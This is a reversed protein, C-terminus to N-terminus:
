KHYPKWEYSRLIKQIKKIVNIIGRNDLIREMLEELLARIEELPEPLPYSKLSRLGDLTHGVYHSPPINEKLLDAIEKATYHTMTWYFEEFDMVCLTKTAMRLFSTFIRKYIFYLRKEEDCGRLATMYNWLDRFYEYQSFHTVIDFWSPVEIITKEKM